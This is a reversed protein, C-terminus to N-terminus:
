SKKAKKTATKKAKSKSASKGKKAGKAAGKKKPAAKKKPGTKAVGAKKVSKASLGADKAKKVQTDLHKSLREAKKAPDIVHPKSDAKASQGNPGTISQVFLETFDQRHGQMRRYGKRRKKKFVLIKKARDHQTVVVSVSAGKILPTGFVPTDGGLALVDVIDFTAGLEQDLKEVRVTEGPQVKYQKGGTRIIAYM